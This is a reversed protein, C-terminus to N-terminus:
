DRDTIPEWFVMGFDGARQFGLGEYTRWAPVQADSTFLVVREFPQVLQCDRVLREMVRRGLRRGRLAGPVFVGGVQAVEDTRANLGAVAALEGGEFAGWVTGTAVEQEFDRRRQEASLPSPPIELERNMAEIHAVWADYHESRLPGTTPDDPFGPHTALELEYLREPKLLTTRPRTGRRDLAGLLAQCIDWRGLVGAWPAGTTLADACIADAVEPTAPDASVVLNGRRVLAFVAVVEGQRLVARFDGSNPHDTRALGYMSWNGLVFMSSAARPRLFSSAAEELGGSVPRVVLEVSM